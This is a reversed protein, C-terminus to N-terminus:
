EHNIVKMKYWLEFLRNIRKTYEKVFDQFLEEDYLDFFDNNYEKFNLTESRNNDSIYEWCDWWDDKQLQM